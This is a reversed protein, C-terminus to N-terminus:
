DANKLKRIFEQESALIIDMSQKAYEIVVQDESLKDQLRLIMFVTFDRIFEQKTM